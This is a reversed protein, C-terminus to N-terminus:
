SRVEDRLFRRVTSILEDEEFNGKVLYASAGLEAGRRKDSESGRTTFM